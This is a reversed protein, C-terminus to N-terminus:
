RAVELGLADYDHCRQIWRMVDVELRERIGRDLRLIRRPQTDDPRHTMTITMWDRSESLRHGAIHCPLVLRPDPTLFKTM